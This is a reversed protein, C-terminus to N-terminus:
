VVIFLVIMLIIFFLRSLLLGILIIQYKLKIQTNPENRIIEIFDPIDGFLGWFYSTSVGNSRLVSKFLYYFINALSIVMALVFFIMIALM